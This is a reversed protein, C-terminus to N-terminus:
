SKWDIITATAYMFPRDLDVAHRFSIVFDTADSNTNQSFHLEVLDRALTPLDNAHENDAPCSLSVARDGSFVALVGNVHSFGHEDRSEWLSDVINM